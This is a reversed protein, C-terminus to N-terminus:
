TGLGSDCGSRTPRGATPECGWGRGCRRTGSREALLAAGDLVHSRFTCWSYQLFLALEGRSIKQALEGAESQLAPNTDLESWVRSDGLIAEERISRFVTHGSDRLTFCKGRPRLRSSGGKRCCFRM